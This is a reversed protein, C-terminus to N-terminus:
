DRELVTVDGGSGFVALRGGDSSYALAVPTGKVQIPLQGEAARQSLTFRTLVNGGQGRYIVVAEDSDAPNIAALFPTWGESEGIRWQMAKAGKIDVLALQQTPVGQQQVGVALGWRGDRAIVVQNFHQGVAYSATLKVSAGSVEVRHFRGASPNTFYATRDDSTTMLHEGRAQQGPGVPPSIVAVSSGDEPGHHLGGQSSSSVTWLLRDGVPAADRISNGSVVPKPDIRDKAVDGLLVSNNSALALQQGDASFHGRCSGMTMPYTRVIQAGALDLQVLQGGTFAFLAGDNPRAIVGCVNGTLQLSGTASFPFDDESCGAGLVM